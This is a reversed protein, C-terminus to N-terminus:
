TRPEDKMGALRAETPVYEYDRMVELENEGACIRDYATAMWHVGLVYGPHGTGDELREHVLKLIENAALILGNREATRDTGNGPLQGKVILRDIVDWCDKASASSLVVPKM